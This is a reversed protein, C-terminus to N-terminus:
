CGAPLEPPAEDQLFSRLREIPSADGTLSLLSRIRDLFLRHNGVFDIVTLSRKGDKARLGRGLQQLFIVNSETPRLMVVRDIERVDIGENFVDVACVADVAGDRLRSLAAE